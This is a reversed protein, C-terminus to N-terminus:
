WGFLVSSITSTPSKLKSFSIFFHLWIPHTMVSSGITQWNGQRNPVLLPVPTTSTTYVGAEFIMEFM